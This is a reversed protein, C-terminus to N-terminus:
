FDHWDYRESVWQNIISIVPDIRRLCNRVAENVNQWLVVVSGQIVLSSLLKRLDGIKKQIPGVGAEKENIKTQKFVCM